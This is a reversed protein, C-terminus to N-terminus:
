GIQAILRLLDTVDSYGDRNIDVNLTETNKKLIYDILLQKDTDDIAGDGNIDGRMRASEQQSVAIQGDIFTPNLEPYKGDKYGTVHVASVSLPINAYRDSLIKLSLNAITGDETLPEAATYVIVIEGASKATVSIHGTKVVAGPTYGTYELLTKDYKVVLKGATTGPNATICVSVGAVSGISGSGGRLSIEPATECVGSFSLLLIFAITITLSFIRKM